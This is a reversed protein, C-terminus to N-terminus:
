QAAEVLELDAEILSQSHRIGQLRAYARLYVSEISNTVLANLAWALKQRESGPCTLTVLRGDGLRAVAQQLWDEDLLSICTRDDGITDAVLLREVLPLDVFPNWLQLGSQRVARGRPWLLGYIAGLRWAARDNGLLGGIDSVVHDIEDSQSLYYSMVRLDIEIGIRAEASQWQQLVQSLYRDTAPGSGPRLVRNGLAVLFGHFTAFGDHVLSRRLQRFADAMQKQNDARRFLRVVEASESDGTGGVTADADLLDILRCLQNDILEFEGMGLNARVLAFFRRPDEAYRRMFEEIQGNGGPSRESFWAEVLEPDSGLDQGSIAPGRDM